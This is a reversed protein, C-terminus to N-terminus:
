HKCTLFSHASHKSKHLLNKNKEQLTFYLGETKRNRPVTSLVERNHSRFDKSCIPLLLLKTIFDLSEFESFNSFNIFRYANM